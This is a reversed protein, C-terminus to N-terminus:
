PRLAPHCCMFVMILTDDAGPATVDDDPEAHVRDERRRRAADQRHRDIMRRSGVRVLWGVPNGPVGTGPWEAAATILAEQVADEADSDNKM